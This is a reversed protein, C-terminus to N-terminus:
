EASGPGPNARAELESVTRNRSRLRAATIDLEAMRQEHELEAMKKQYELEAERRQHAIEALRAEEEEQEHLLRRQEEQTSIERRATAPSSPTAITGQPATSGSLETRIRSIPTDIENMPPAASPNRQQYAMSAARAELEPKQYSKTTAELEPKHYSKTTEKRGVAVAAGDHISSNSAASKEQLSRRARRRRLFWLFVLGLAVLLVGGVVGGAIAGANSHSKSDSGPKTTSSSTSSSTSSWSPRSIASTPTPVGSTFPVDSASSAGAFAEAGISASSNDPNLVRDIIHIVGNSTLVDPFIVKANDIYLDDDIQTVELQNGSISEM